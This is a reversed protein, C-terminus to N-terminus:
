EPRDFAVTATFSQMDEIQTFPNESGDGQTHFVSRLESETGAVYHEMEGLLTKVHRRAYRGVEQVLVGLDHITKGQTKWLQYYHYFVAVYFDNVM